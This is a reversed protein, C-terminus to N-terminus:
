FLTFLIIEEEEQYETILGEIILVLNGFRIGQIIM